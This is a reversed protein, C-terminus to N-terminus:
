WRMALRQQSIEGGRQKQGLAILVVVQVLLLRGLHFAAVLLCHQRRESSSVRVPPIVVDKHMQLANKHVVRLLSYRWLNPLLAVAEETTWEQQAAAQRGLDLDQAYNRTSPDHHLKALLVSLAREAGTRERFVNLRVGRPVYGEVRAPGLTERRGLRVALETMRALAQAMGTASDGTQVVYTMRAFQEAGPNEPYMGTLTPIGMNEAVFACLAGCAQGYRGANFAPGAVLVDPKLEELRERAWEILENLQENAYNDGCILTAVIQGRDGLARALVVGPGVAGVRQQPEISATDEGGIGGFFQNLYHVVRLTEAM